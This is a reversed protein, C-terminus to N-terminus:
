AIPTGSRSGTSCASPLLMSQSKMISCVRMVEPETHMAQIVGSSYARSVRGPTTM